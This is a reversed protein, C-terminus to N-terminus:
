DLTRPPPPVCSWSADNWAGCPPAAPCGVFWPLVGTLLPDEVRAALGLVPIGTVDQVVPPPPVRLCSRCCAVVGTTTAPVVASLIARQCRFGQSGAHEAPLDARRADGLAEALGCGDGLVHPLHVM